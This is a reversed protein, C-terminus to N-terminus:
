CEIISFKLNKYGKTKVGHWAVSYNSLYATCTETNECDALSPHTFTFCGATPLISLMYAYEEQTLQSYTFTWTGVKQRVVIRHMIGSEDRGSDSSDLDEFSMEVNEDPALMPKGNIQYLETITNM